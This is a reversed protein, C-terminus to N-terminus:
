KEYNHISERLKNITNHNIKRIIQIKKNKKLKIKDLIYLM